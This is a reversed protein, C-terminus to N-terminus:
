AAEEYVYWESSHGDVKEKVENVRVLGHHERCCDTSCFTDAMIKTYRNIRKTCGERECVILTSEKTYKRRAYNVFDDYQSTKAKEKPTKTITLARRAALKKAQGGPSAKSTVEELRKAWAVTLADMDYLRTKNDESRKEEKFYGERKARQFTQKSTGLREIAEARTVLETM